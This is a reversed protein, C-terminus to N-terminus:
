SFEQVLLLRLKKSIKKEKRNKKGGRGGRREPLCKCINVVMGKNLNLKKGEKM